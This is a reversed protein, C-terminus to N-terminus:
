RYPPTRRGANRVLSCVGGPLDASIFSLDPGHELAVEVWGAKGLQSQPNDEENTRVGTHPPPQTPSQRHPRRGGGSRRTYLRASGSSWMWARKWAHRTASSSSFQGCARGVEGVAGNRTVFMAGAEGGMRGGVMARGVVKTASKRSGGADWGRASYTVLFRNCVQFLQQSCRPKYHKGYPHTTKSFTWVCSRACACM